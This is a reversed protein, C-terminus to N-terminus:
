DTVSVILETLTAIREFMSDVVAFEEVTHNRAGKVGVACLTPVGAIVEYSSDAGGGCTIAKLSGLGNAEYVANYRNFVDMVGDTTKMPPMSWKLEYSSTTGEVHTPELAEKVMQEIEPQQAPDVYRIDVVMEAHAPVANPVTGGKATGANFTIGEKVGNLAQIAIIKHSLELLASRGNEPDNGAHAGVGEVNLYIYATGKRGVVVSNDVFSTEFNLAMRAGSVAKTFSEGATSDKHATEEDGALVIKIQRDTYGIKQLTKVIYYAITIGGKMDLAGPGYAKGDTITFPRKEVEGQPFVTDYHGSLVIPAKDTAEGFTAVIFDGAKEFPEVTVKGGIKTFADVLFARAEDLGAKYSSGSDYSVLDKWFQIVEEQCSDVYQKIEENM